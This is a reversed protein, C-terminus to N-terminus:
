GKKEERKECMVCKCNCLIGRGGSCVVSFESELHLVQAGGDVGRMSRGDGTQWETIKRGKGRRKGSTECACM